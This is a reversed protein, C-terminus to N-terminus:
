PAGGARRGREFGARAFRRVAPWEGCPQAVEDSWGCQLDAEVEEFARGAYDPNRAALHGAVYAPRVSDYSRDAPRDPTEEYHARYAADDDDTIANAIGRGAWWGGVAGAIGGLVLGVPGGAVGLAMGTAAGLTGGSAKGVTKADTKINEPTAHGPPASRPEILSMDKPEHSEHGAM